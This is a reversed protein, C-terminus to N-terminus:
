FIKGANKRYELIIKGIYENNQKKCINNGCIYMKTENDNIETFKGVWNGYFNKNDMEFSYLKYM